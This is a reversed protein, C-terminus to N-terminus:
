FNDDFAIKRKALIRIIFYLVLGVPGFMFTLLLCPIVLLHNIGRKKADGVEWSGVWLDFALYHVWGALVVNPDSFLKMVEELSGFGGESDGFHAFILYAYVLCLLIPIIGFQVTKKLFSHLPSIALIVWGILAFTNCFSFLSEPSFM